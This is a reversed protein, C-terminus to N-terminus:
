MSVEWRIEARVNKLVLEMDYFRLFYVAVECFLCVFSRVFSRFFFLCRNCSCCMMVCRVCGCLSWCVVVCRVVVMVEM